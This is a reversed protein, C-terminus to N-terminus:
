NGFAKTAWNQHLFPIAGASVKGAQQFATRSHQAELKSLILASASMAGGFATTCLRSGLRPDQNVALDKVAINPYPSPITAATSSAIPLLLYHSALLLLLYYLPLLPTCARHNLRKLQVAAHSVISSVVAHAVHYVATLSLLMRPLLPSCM